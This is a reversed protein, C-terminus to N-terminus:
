WTWNKKWFTKSSKNFYEDIILFDVNLTLNYCKQQNYKTITEFRKRSKLQITQRTTNRMMIQNLNADIIHVFIEDDDDFYKRCQFEFLFNHDNSLNDHYDIFVNIIVDVFIIIKNKIRIVRKLCSNKRTITNIFILLNQCNNLQITQNKMNLKIRQAILM